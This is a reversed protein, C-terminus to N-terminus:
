GQPVPIAFDTTSDTVTNGGTEDLFINQSNNGHVYTVVPYAIFLTLLTGVLLVLVGINLIGRTAFFSSPKDISKPDHLFDDDEKEQDDVSPDYVYAELGGRM